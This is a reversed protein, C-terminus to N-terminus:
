RLSLEVELKKGTSHPFGVRGTTQTHLRGPRQERRLTINAAEIANVQLGIAARKFSLLKQLEEAEDSQKALLLVATFWGTKCSLFCRLERAM